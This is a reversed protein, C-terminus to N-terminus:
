SSPAPEASKDGLQPILTWHRSRAADSLLSQFATSVAGEHLAYQHTFEKLTAYYNDLFKKFPNKPPKPTRPPKTPSQSM